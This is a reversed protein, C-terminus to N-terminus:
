GPAALLPLRSPRPVHLHGGQSVAPMAAAVEPRLRTGAAGPADPYSLLDACTAYARQEDLLSHSEVPDVALDYPSAM